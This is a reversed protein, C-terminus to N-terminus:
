VLARRVKELDEQTDVGISRSQVEVVGISIGHALARLQELSEARELRCPPLERFRMLTERSYVYLGLHRFCAFDGGSEPASMRSYPIPLRSFYIARDNEDAIVKVVSLDRLEEVSTIRSMLTGIPYRGSRVLEIAKEIIEPEILPEDGQVNVYIEAQMRDAVAAVRDTGSTLEPSTLVVDGGFRRVANVVREDDTAVVVGDLGRARKAREYVWQIMPKGHIDALPKGSLRTSGFRAPIVALVKAVGAM